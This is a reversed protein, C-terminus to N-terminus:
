TIPFNKKEFNSANLWEFLVEHSILSESINPLSEKNTAISEIWETTLLSLNPSIFPEMEPKLYDAAYRNKPLTSKPNRLNLIKIQELENITIRANDGLFEWIGFSTSSSSLSFYVKAVIKNKSFLKLYIAGGFDLFNSGRGSPITEEDVEAYMVKYNDADFLFFLLDLYHIGNAGIGITGTNLSVSIIGSMQDLSKINQKLEKFGPYLRMNLNVFFKIRSKTNCYDILDSVLELSQGLPKEILVYKPNALTIENLLGIRDDATSSLIVIDFECKKFDIESNTLFQVRKDKLLPKVNEKASNLADNLIDCIWIESIFSSELAGILHRQGM